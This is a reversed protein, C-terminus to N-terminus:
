LELCLYHPSGPGTGVIHCAIPGYPGDVTWSGPRHLHGSVIHRVKPQDLVLTGLTFNALYARLLGWHAHDPYHALAHEVVPMHTVVLVQEVAPDAELQALRGALGRACFRAMAVDSWPWDVYDADNSIQGKLAQYDAEAYPLGPSRSSYDYWGLTGCIGLSGLRLAQSELWVFGEERTVQPLWVEWLERSGYEGKYVDHNGAILLRPCPLDRFLQLTRRFLRLPHGVDGAIIFCDPRAARVAEAFAVYAARQAPRYHLDATVLVRTPM